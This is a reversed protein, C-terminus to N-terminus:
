RKLLLRIAAGFSLLVGSELMQQVTVLGVDIADNVANGFFTFCHLHKVNSM